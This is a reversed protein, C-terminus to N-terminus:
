PSIVPPVVTVILIPPQFITIPVIVENYIRLDRVFGKFITANSYNIVSVDRDGNQNLAFIAKCGLVSDLYLRAESGDYSIVATYWRNAQYTVTCPTRNSNNYLLNISGDNNLEFGLWRFSRGGVFVPMRLRADAKFEIEISFADFDFGNLNGTSVVCNNGQAYVGNCYVAEDIFPANTLTMDSQKGTIDQGDTQLPYHAVLRAQATATAAAVAQATATAAAEVTQTAAAAQATQTAAFQAAAETQQASVTQQAVALATSTADNAANQAQATATANAADVATQTAALDLTATPTPLQGPDPDVNDPLGDGDTDPNIPSSGLENVEQGDPLTDGDSDRVLPNSGWVQEEGDLLGDGDTDPNQPDTGGAGEATNSLGDGDDDNAAQTALAVQTSQAVATEQSVVAQLAVATATQLNGEYWQYGFLGGGCLLALLIPILTLVWGSIRPKVELSGSRTQAEQGTTAVDVRFPYPRARGMLPRTKAQIKLPVVATQGPEITLSTQQGEFQLAEASDRGLVRYSGSANGENRVNV